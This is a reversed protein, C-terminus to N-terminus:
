ALCGAERDEPLEHAESGVAELEEALQVVERHRGLADDVVGSEEFGSPVGVAHAGLGQVVVEHVLEGGPQAGRAPLADDASSLLLGMPSISLSLFFAVGWGAAVGAGGAAAGAWCEPPVMLRALPCPM